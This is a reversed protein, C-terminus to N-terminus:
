KKTSTSIKEANEHAAQKEQLSDRLARLWVRGWWRMLLGAALATLASRWLTSPWPSGQAWSFALGIGFGLLGGLLLIFKM